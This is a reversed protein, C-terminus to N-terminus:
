LPIGLYTKIKNKFGNLRDNTIFPALDTPLGEAQKAAIEELAAYLSGGLTHHEIWHLYKTVAVTKGQQTIGMLVNETKFEKVIKEGFAKAAEVVANVIQDATPATAVNYATLDILAMAAAFDAPSMLTFGQAQFNEVLSDEIEYLEWHYADPMAPHKDPNLSQPKYAIMM